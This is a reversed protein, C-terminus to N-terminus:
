FRVKIDGIDLIRRLICFGLGEYCAVLDVMTEECQFDQCTEVKPQRLWAWQYSLYIDHSYVQVRIQPM